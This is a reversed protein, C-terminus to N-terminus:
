GRPDAAVGRPAKGTPRLGTVWRGLMVLDSRIRRVALYVGTASAALGGLMLTLLLSRWLFSTM